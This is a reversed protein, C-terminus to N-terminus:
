PVLFGTGYKHYKKEGSNWTKHGKDTINEGTDKWRMESIELIQWSYKEMKHTLPKTQRKLTSHSRKM